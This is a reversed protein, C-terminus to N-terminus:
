LLQLSVELFTLQAHWDEIVPIIGELRKTATSANSMAAIAGRARVATLQDGGFLTTCVTATEDSVTEGLSPITVERTFEKYPVYKHLESLIEVM